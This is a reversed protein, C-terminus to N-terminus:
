RVAKQKNEHLFDLFEAEDLRGEAIIEGGHELVPIRVGFRDRLEADTNIDVVQTEAEPDLRGVAAQMVECLHCGPKSFLRYRM